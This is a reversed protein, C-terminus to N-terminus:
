REEGKNEKKTKGKKEKTKSQKEDDKRYYERIEEKSLFTFRGQPSDEAKDKFEKIFASPSEAWLEGKNFVHVKLVYGDGETTTEIDIGKKANETREHNIEEKIQKLGNDDYMREKNINAHDAEYILVSIARAILKRKQKEEHNIELDRESLAEQRVLGNLRSTDIMPGDYLLPLNNRIAFDNILKLMIMASDHASKRQAELNHVYETSDELPIAHDIMYERGTEIEHKARAMYYRLFSEFAMDVIKVEGMEEDWSKGVKTKEAEDIEMAKKRIALLKELYM